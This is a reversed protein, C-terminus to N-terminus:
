VVDIDKRRYDPNVQEENQKDACKCGPSQMQVELGFVVTAGIAFV